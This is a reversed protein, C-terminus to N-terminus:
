FFYVTKFCKGISLSITDHLSQASSEWIVKLVRDFNTANLNDKLLILNKDLYEILSEINRGAYSVLSCGEVLFKQIVPGM